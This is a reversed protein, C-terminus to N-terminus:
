WRKWDRVQEPAPLTSLRRMACPDAGLVRQEVFYEDSTWDSGKAGGGGGHRSFDSGKAGGGGGHRSIDSGMAAHYEDVSKVPPGADRRLARLVIFAALDIIKMPDFLGNPTLPTTM